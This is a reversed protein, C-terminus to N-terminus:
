STAQNDSQTQINEKKKAIILLIVSVIVAIIGIYCVVTALGWDYRSSPIVGRDEYDWKTLWFIGFTLIDFILAAISKKIVVFLTTLAAFVAYLCAMILCVIAVDTQVGNDIQVLAMRGLDILSLDVAEENTMNIEEAYIEEPDDLLSQEYSETASAFPLFLVIILLIAGSLAIWFPINKSKKQETLNSTVCDM